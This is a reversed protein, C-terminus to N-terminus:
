SVSVDLGSRDAIDVRGAREDSVSRAILRNAGPVGSSEVRDDLGDRQFLGAREPLLGAAQVDRFWQAAAEPTPFVLEITARERPRLGHMRSVTRVPGVM